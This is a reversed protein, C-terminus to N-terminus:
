QQVIESETVVRQHGDSVSELRYQNNGLYEPMLSVVRFNGAPTGGLGSGRSPKVFHVTQGIRYKHAVM